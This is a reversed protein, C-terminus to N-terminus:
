ASASVQFHVIRPDVADVVATVAPDTVTVPGYTLPDSITVSTTVIAENGQTDTVSRSATFTRASADTADVEWDTTGGPNVTTATLTNKTVVPASGAM